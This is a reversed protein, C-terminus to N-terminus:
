LVEGKQTMGSLGRAALRLDPIWCVHRACQAGEFFECPEGVSAAPNGSERSHCFHAM